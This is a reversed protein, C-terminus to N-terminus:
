KAKRSKLFRNIAKEESVEKIDAEEIGFGEELQKLLQPLTSSIKEVSDIYQKRGTWDIGMPNGEKDMLKFDEDSIKVLKEFNKFITEVMVKAKARENPRLFTMKDIAIKVNDPFDFVIYQDRIEDTLKDGWAKKLATLVKEKSSKSDRLPSTPNAYWWVFLLQPTSLSKFEEIRNLEPHQKKLDRESSPGFLLLPSDTIM